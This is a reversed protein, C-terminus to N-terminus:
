GKIATRAVKIRQELYGGYFDEIYAGEMRDAVEKGGAGFFIVTPAVKIKWARVLQDHTVPMRDFDQVKAGSRMDIQFVALGEQRRMPELYNNRAVQCFPCKDLSVMIVLPQSRKVAKALEDALSEPAPLVSGAAQTTVPLSLASFGIAALVSRRRLSSLHFM